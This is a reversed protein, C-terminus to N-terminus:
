FLRRSNPLKAQGANTLSGAEGEVVRWDNGLRALLDDFEPGRLPPTGGKCPVCQLMALDSM